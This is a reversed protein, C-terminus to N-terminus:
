VIELAHPSGVRCSFRTRRSSLELRQVLGIENGVLSCVSSKSQRLKRPNLEILQHDKFRQVHFIRLRDRSFKFNNTGFKALFNVHQADHKQSYRANINRRYPQWFLCNLDIFILSMAEKRNELRWKERLRWNVVHRQSTLLKM